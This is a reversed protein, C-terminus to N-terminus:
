AAAPPHLLPQSGRSRQTRRALAMGLFGALILASTGPEPVEVTATTVSMRQDMALGQNMFAHNDSEFGFNASTIRVRDFEGLGLFNIYRNTSASSQHGNPAGEIVDAGSWAGILMEGLWFSISNYSDISGWFLGFYDAVTPLLLDVFMVESVGDRPVTLYSTSNASETEAVYPAAYRGAVSGSVISFNGACAQYGCSGDNFDIRTAAEFPTTPVGDQDLVYDYSITAGLAPVAMLCSTMVAIQLTRM